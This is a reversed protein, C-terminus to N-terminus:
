VGFKRGSLRAAPVTVRSSSQTATPADSLSLLATVMSVLAAPLAPRGSGTLSSEPWSLPPLPRPPAAPAPPPPPMLRSHLIVTPGPRDMETDMTHICPVTTSAWNSRSRTTSRSSVPVKMTWPTLLMGFPLGHKDWPLEEWESRTFTLPSM